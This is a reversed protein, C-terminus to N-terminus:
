LGFSELLERPYCESSYIFIETRVSCYVSLTKTIFVVLQIYQISFHDSNKKESALEFCTLASHTIFSFYKPTKVFNRFAVVLKTM